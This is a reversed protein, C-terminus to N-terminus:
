QSNRKQFWDAEGTKQMKRFKFYPYLCYASCVLGLVLSGMFSLQIFFFMLIHVLIGIGVVVPIWRDLKFTGFITTFLITVTVVITTQSQPPLYSFPSGIFPQLIWLLLVITMISTFWLSLMSVEKFFRLYSYQAPLRLDDLFVHFGKVYSVKLMQGSELQKEVGKELDHHNPIKLVEIDDIFITVSNPKGNWRFTCKLECRNDGNKEIPFKIKFM